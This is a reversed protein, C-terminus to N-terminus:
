LWTSRAFSYLAAAARRHCRGMRVPLCPQARYPVTSTDRTRPSQIVASLILVSNCPKAFSLALSDKMESIQSITFTRALYKMRGLACGRLSTSSIQVWSEVYGAVSQLVERGVRTEMCMLNQTVSLQSSIRSSVYRAM